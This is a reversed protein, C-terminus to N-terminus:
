GLSSLLVFHDVGAERAADALLRTTGVDSTEYTDGSAFRKRMTGILQGVTTCGSLSSVLRTRDSLEFAVSGPVARRAHLVLDAAGGAARALARGVAGTSGAVFIKRDRM